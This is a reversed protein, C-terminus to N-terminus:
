APRPLADGINRTVGFLYGLENQTLRGVNKSGAEDLAANILGRKKEQLEIIRDEVTNEILVRHVKVPKTQGLRHARDIAQEEVFPNWFPDLIIVQNAINLNLGANGAKLSILMMRVNPDKKFDSVAQDRMGANMSGDYRRYEWGKDFIPIELLDLLSTWQSFIIIKEDLGRDVIEQILEVTKDTKSSPVFDRRLRKLYTKKAQQNRTSLKKLEALTVEKKPKKVKKKKEKGKGKAKAKTKFMGMGKKMKKCHPEDVVKQKGKKRESMPADDSTEGKAVIEAESATEAQSDLESAADSDMDDDVIFGNLSSSEDDEDDEDDDSHDDDDDDDDSDTDVESATADEDRMILDEDLNEDEELTEPMHIRKFTEYDVVKKPDVIARCSPCKVTSNEVGSQLANTPDNLRALCESCTFHGCLSFFGPNPVADFCVPCEFGNIEKIRNVIAVDLDKAIREMEEPTIDAAAAVGFDKVLHPHCCAQRLRLLLLLVHAYERGVTGAKVFKNFQIRTKSELSNYFDKEEESFEPNTVEVTREPLVLIPRGNIKSQKSRRLMIAKLLVQLKQMASEKYEISGSKLPQSFDNRFRNWDNYPKIRLFLILSYLEDVSNMMPTGTMCWRYNARLKCVAQATKTSKNKICQAEDIIIRHWRSRSDLFITKEDARPTANPDFEQRKKFKDLRKFEAAITGYSTLVVDYNRLEDFSKAKKTSHHIFVTLRHQVGREIKTEIEEAWQRLLAVPALILNTKCRPDDSRRTVMLSIAQVTKGLGMDDALIGGKNTGQEQNQLWELGAFQYPKLQVTLGKVSVPEDAVKLDEDPRITSLLEELEKKSSESNEMQSLLYDREYRPISSEGYVSEYEDHDMGRPGLLNQLQGFEDGLGVSKQLGRRITDMATQGLQSIWGPRQPPVQQMAPAYSYQPTGPTGPAPPRQPLDPPQFGPQRYPQPQPYPSLRGTTDNNARMAQMMKMRGSESMRQPGLNPPPLIIPEDESDSRTLDVVEPRSTTPAPRPRPPRPEPKVFIPALQSAPPNYSPAQSPGARSSSAFSQSPSGQSLSRAFAADAIEADRRRRAAREAELQRKRAREALTNQSGGFVSGFRGGFNKEAADLSDVSSSSPSHSRSPTPRKSRFLEEGDPTTDNTDRGRKRSFSSGDTLNSNASDPTAIIPIGNNRPRLYLGNHESLYEGPMGPRRGGHWWDDAGDAQPPRSSKPQNTPEQQGDYGQEPPLQAELEQIKTEIDRKQTEYDDAGPDLSDLLVNQFM